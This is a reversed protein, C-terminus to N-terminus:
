KKWPRMAKVFARASKVGLGGKTRLARFMASDTKRPPASPSGAAKYDRMRKVAQPASKPGFWADDLRQELSRRAPDSNDWNFKDPNVANSYYYNFGTGVDKHIEMHVHDGGDTWDTVHAVVQGGRIKQGVSVIPNVHRFVVGLGNGNDFKIALVGGYVAGSRDDTNYSRVVVGSAPAVVPTRAPAFMDWGGHVRGYRPHGPMGQADKYEFAKDINYTGRDRLYRPAWDQRFPVPRFM